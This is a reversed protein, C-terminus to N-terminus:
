IGEAVAAVGIPVLALELARNRVIRFRDPDIGSVRDSHAIAAQDAELEALHVLGDEVVVSRELEIRFEGAREIAAAEGLLLLAIARAGIGIGGAGLRDPGVDGLLERFEADLSRNGM